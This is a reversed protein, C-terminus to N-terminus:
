YLLSDENRKRFAKVAFPLYLILCVVLLVGELSLIYWPWPGLFDIISAGEPKSSLFLYNGGTLRNVAFILAAYLNTYLITKGISRFTPQCGEVSIMYFVATLIAGHLIFFSFFMFHPFPYYLDPTLLAQLSGGLGWFYVLEFSTRGGWILMAVALFAAADCLQIPLAYSLTFVGALVYWLETLTESVLLLAALWYRFRYVSKEARKKKFWVVLLVNLGALVALTIFHTASFAHFPEGSIWATFYAKM